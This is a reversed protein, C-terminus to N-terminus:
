GSNSRGVFAIEPADIEPLFHLEPASTMFRATHLWGSAISSPTAPPTAPKPTTTPRAPKTTMTQIMPRLGCQLIM